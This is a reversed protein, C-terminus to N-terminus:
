NSKQCTGVQQLNYTIKKGYLIKCLFPVTQLSFNSDLGNLFSRPIVTAVSSGEQPWIVLVKNQSDKILSSRPIMTTM